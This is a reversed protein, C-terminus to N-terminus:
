TQWCMVCSKDSVSYRGGGHAQPAPPRANASGEVARPGVRLRREADTNLM